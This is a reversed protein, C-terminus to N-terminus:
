TRLRPLDPVNRLKDVFKEIMAPTPGRFGHMPMSYYGKGRVRLYDWYQPLGDHGRDEDVEHKVTYEPLDGYPFGFREHSRSNLMKSRCFRLGWTTVAFGQPPNILRKWRFFAILEEGETLMHEAAVLGREERTVKPDSAVRLKHERALEEVRRLVRQRAEHDAKGDPEAPPRSRTCPARNRVFPRDGGADRNTIAPLPRGRALLADYVERYIRALSLFEGEGAIGESLREALEGTFVTFPEGPLALSIQDPPASAISVSGQTRLANVVATGPDGLDHGIQGSYCCDFIIVRFRAKAYALLERMQWYPVASYIRDSDSGTLAMHLRGNSDMLGHGSFYVLLTDTAKAAAEDVPDLMESNTTPNSVTVCHESPIGLIAPDCLIEKLRTINGAVAPLDALAERARGKRYRSTGILVARSAKVEPPSTV